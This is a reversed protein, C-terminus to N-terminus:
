GIVTLSLTLRGLKERELSYEGYLKPGEKKTEEVVFFLAKIGREGYFFEQDQEKMKM